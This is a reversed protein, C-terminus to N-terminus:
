ADKMAMNIDGCHRIINDKICTLGAMGEKDYSKCRTLMKNPLQSHTINDTKTYPHVM